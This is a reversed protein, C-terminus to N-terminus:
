KGQNWLEEATKEKPEETKKEAEVSRHRYKKKLRKQRKEEIM